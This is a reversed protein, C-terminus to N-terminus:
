SWEEYTFSGTEGPALLPHVEAAMSVVETGGLLQLDTTVLMLGRQVEVSALRGNTKNEGNLKLAVLLQAQSAGVVRSGAIAAHDYDAEQAGTAGATLAKIMGFKYQVEYDTGEVLVPTGGVGSLVFSGDTLNRQLLDIWKDQVLTVPEDTVSGAGQNLVGLSGRMAISLQAAPLSDISFKIMPQGPNVWASLIQGENNIGSGIHKGVEGAGPNLTFDSINAPDEWGNFVFGAGLVAILLDGKLKIGTDTNEGYSM